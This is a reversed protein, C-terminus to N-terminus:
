RAYASRAEPLCRVACLHPWNNIRAYIPHDSCTFIMLFNMLAKATFVATADTPTMRLADYINSDIERAWTQNLAILSSFMTAICWAGGAVELASQSIRDIIVSFIVIVLLSYFLMSNICQRSRWETRVDKQLHTSIIRLWPVIKM